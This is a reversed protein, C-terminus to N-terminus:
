MVQMQNSEYPILYIRMVVNLTHKRKDLSREQITKIVIDAEVKAMDKGKIDLSSSRPSM